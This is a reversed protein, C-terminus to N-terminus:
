STELNLGTMLTHTETPVRFFVPGRPRPKWKRNIWIGLIVAVHVPWDTLLKYNCVFRGRVSFGNEHFEFRWNSVERCHKYAKCLSFYTSQDNAEFYSM